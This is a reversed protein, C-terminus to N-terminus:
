GALRDGIAVVASALIDMDEMRTRHNTIAVRIAYRSHLVTYSPAAIGSEHLQMLIEKNLANLEEVHGPNYRFCVINMTVEALLELTPHADILKGLYAAQAINCEIQRAYQQVGHEKLSMWVKLAKFGRSLEIGKSTYAEPGAALGREHALLYNAKASFTRRQLAADRVLVGGVEYPMYMWKHLDFAVSDAQEIASLQKKFGPV